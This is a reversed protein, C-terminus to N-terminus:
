KKRVKLDHAKSGISSVTRNLQKALQKNSMAKYNNTLFNTEQKNWARRGKWAYSRQHSSAKVRSLTRRTREHEIEHPKYNRNFVEKTAKFNQSKLIKNLHNDKSMVNDKIHRLFADYDLESIEDISYKEVMYNTLKTYDNEKGM